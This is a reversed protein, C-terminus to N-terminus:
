TYTYAQIIESSASTKQSKINRSWYHYILRRIRSECIIYIIKSRTQMDLYTKRLNYFGIVKSLKIFAKYLYLYCVHPHRYFSFTEGLVNDMVTTLRKPALGCISLSCFSSFIECLVLILCTTHTNM